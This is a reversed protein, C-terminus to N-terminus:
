FKKTPIQSLSFVKCLINFCLFKAVSFNGSRRYISKTCLQRYECAFNVFKIGYLRFIQRPNLNPLKATPTSVALNFDALIKNAAGAIHLVYYM